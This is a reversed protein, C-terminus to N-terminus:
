VETVRNQIERGLSIKKLVYICKSYLFSFIRHMIFGFAIFKERYKLDYASFHLKHLPNLDGYYWSNYSDFIAKRGWYMKVSEPVADPAIFDGSFDQFEERMFRPIGFITAVKTFRYVRNVNDRFTPNIGVLRQSIVNVTRFKHGTVLILDFVDIMDPKEILVHNLIRWAEDIYISCHNLSNLYRIYSKTDAVPVMEDLDKDYEFGGFTKIGDVEGTDANIYHFNETTPIVFYRKKWPLLIGRLIFLWNERDDVHATQIPWTAYVTKGANLEDWIDATAGYTKGSRIKGIYLNGEGEPVIFANDLLSADVLTGLQKM